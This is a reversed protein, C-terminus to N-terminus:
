YGPTYAAGYRLLLSHVEGSRDVSVLYLRDYEKDEMIEPGPEGGLLEVVRPTTHSHGVVLHCGGLRRMQEVLGNLDTPDYLAVRLGKSVALPEATKRTRFFDTSHIYEIDVDHLTQALTAARVYGAPSLEADRSHDVKEAHRVLFVQLSNTQTSGEKTGTDSACASFLIVFFVFALKRVNLADM